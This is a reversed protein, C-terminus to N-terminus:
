QASADSPGRREAAAQLCARESKLDEIESQLGACRLELVRKEHELQQVRVQLRQLESASQAGVDDRAPAKNRTQKRTMYNDDRKTIDCTAAAAMVQFTAEDVHQMAKAYAAMEVDIEKLRQMMREHDTTKPM